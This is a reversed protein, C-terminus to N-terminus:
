IKKFIRKKSKGAKKMMLSIVYKPVGFVRGIEEHIFGKKIYKEIKSIPINVTYGDYKVKM